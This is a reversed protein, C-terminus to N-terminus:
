ILSYVMSGHEKGLTYYFHPFHWRTSLNSYAIQGSVNGNHDHNGAIMYWKAAKLVPATYVDEFTRRFRPDEVNKVGNFYFNDGLGM